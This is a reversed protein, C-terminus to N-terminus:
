RRKRLAVETTKCENPVVIEVRKDHAVELNRWTSSLQNQTIKGSSTPRNPDQRDVPPEALVSTPRPRPTGASAAAIRDRHRVHRGFHPTGCVAVSRGPSWMTPRPSNM